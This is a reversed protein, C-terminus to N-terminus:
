RPPRSMELGAAIGSDRGAGADSGRGAAAAELAADHSAAVGGLFVNEGGWLDAIVVEARYRGDVLRAVRPRLTHGPGSM